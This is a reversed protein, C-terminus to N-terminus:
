TKHHSVEMKYSPIQSSAIKRAQNLVTLPWVDILFFFFLLFECKNLLMFICLQHPKKMSFHTFCQNIEYPLSNAPFLNQLFSLLFGVWLAAFLSHMKLYLEFWSIFLHPSKVNCSLVIQGKHFINVHYIAWARQHKTSIIM